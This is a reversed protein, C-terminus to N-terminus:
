YSWFLYIHILGLEFLCIKDQCVSRWSPWSVKFDCSLSPTLQLKQDPWKARLLKAVHYAQAQIRDGSIKLVKCPPQLFACWTAEGMGSRGEGAGRLGVPSSTDWWRPATQCWGQSFWSLRLATRWPATNVKLFSTDVFKKSAKQSTIQSSDVLPAQLSKKHERDECEGEYVTRQRWHCNWSSSSPAILDALWSQGSLADLLFTQTNEGGFGQAGELGGEGAGGSEGHSGGRELETRWGCCSSDWGTFVATLSNEPSMGGELLGHGRKRHHHPVAALAASSKM